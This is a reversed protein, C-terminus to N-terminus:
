IIQVNPMGEPQKSDAIHAAQRRVPEASFCRPRILTRTSNGSALASLQRVQTKWYPYWTMEQGSDLGALRYLGHELFKLRTLLHPREDYVRAMFQGLPLWCFPWICGM